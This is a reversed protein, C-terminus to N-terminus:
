VNKFLKKLTQEDPRPTLYSVVVLMLISVALAPYISPIGWPDKGWVDQGKMVSPFGYPIVIDFVIAMVAGSIISAVGGQKTARKWALAAFLAPTIAVGYLTYAFYAYKLVSIKLDFVTPLFVMLFALFGLIVVVLKQLAVMTKQDADPKIFRQYIDRMINTSPSLLYNMGTSIVVMCAAALLLLGVPAPVMHRAAQLVISAPDISKDQWFYSAAYIAIVIVVAEVVITGIIWLVVAKKADAATKASYFKQYMSQVGLLLLLTAFFYSLAKLVPFQGFQESFVSMHASPLTQAAADWGGAKLVVFPVAVICALVIIIGNPLDTHAVAIMGGLAVFLIVFAAAIIQGAEVSMSGDTIVNLIIGGARFQYSVITTFAIILAIAGFLRAFKGYREELIDGITYQGFTRIKAALFYIIAIGVWAGAPMWLSSWGARYAYEAGAIFTGSGIWTCVLTFVMKTVGLSRGAVMMDDQTKVKGSKYFNYIGVVILYALILYLYISM